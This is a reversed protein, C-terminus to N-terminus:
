DNKRTRQKYVSVTKTQFSTRLSMLITKTLHSTVINENRFKSNPNKKAASTHIPHLPWPNMYLLMVEPRVLVVEYKNYQVLVM